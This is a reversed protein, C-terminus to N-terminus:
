RAGENSVESRSTEGPPGLLTRLRLLAEAKMAGVTGLAIGMEDAIESYSKAQLYFLDLVQRDRGTLRAFAAEVALKEALQDPSWEAGAVAEEDEVRQWYPDDRQRARLHDACKRCAIQVLYTHLSCDGRFRTASTFFAVQVEQLVDDCEQPSLHFRSSVIRRLSPLALELARSIAARDGARVAQVLDSRGLQSTARSM